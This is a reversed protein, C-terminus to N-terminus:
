QNKPWKLLAERFNRVDSKDIESINLDGVVEVFLQFFKEYDALTSARKNDNKIKDEKYKEWVESLKYIKKPTKVKKAGQIYM